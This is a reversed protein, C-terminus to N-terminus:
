PFRWGNMYKGRYETTTTMKPTCGMNVGAYEDLPVVIFQCICESFFGRLVNIGHTPQDRYPDWWSDSSYSSFVRAAFYAFLLPESVSLNYVM